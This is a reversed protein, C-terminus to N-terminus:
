LSAPFATSNMHFGDFEADIPHKDPAGTVIRADNNQLSTCPANLANPIGQSTV